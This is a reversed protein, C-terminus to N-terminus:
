GVAYGAPDAKAWNLAACRILDRVREEEWPGKAMNYWYCVVRCNDETYGKNNDRRDISPSQPHSQWQGSSYTRM